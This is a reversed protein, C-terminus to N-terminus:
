NRIHAPPPPTTHNDTQHESSYPPLAESHNEPSYLPLTEASSRPVQELSISEGLQPTYSKVKHLMYIGGILGITGLGMSLSATLDKTTFVNNFFNSDIVATNNYLTVGARMIGSGLSGAGVAAVAMSAVAAIDKKNKAIRRNLSNPGSLVRRTLPRSHDATSSTQEAPIAISFDRTQAGITSPM